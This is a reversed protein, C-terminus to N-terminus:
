DISRIIESKTVRLTKFFEEKERNRRKVENWMSVFLLLLLILIVISPLWVKSLESIYTAIFYIAFIGVPVTFLWLLAFNRMLDCYCPFCVKRERYFSRPFSTVYSTICEECIPAGCETCKEISEKHPHYRCFNITDLSM